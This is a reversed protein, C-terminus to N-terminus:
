MMPLAQNIQNELFVGDAPCDAYLHFLNKLAM